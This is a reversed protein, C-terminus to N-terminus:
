KWYKVLFLHLYVEYWPNLFSFNRYFLDAYIYDSIVRVDLAQQVDSYDQVVYIFSDKIFSYYGSFRIVVTCVDLAVTKSYSSYM